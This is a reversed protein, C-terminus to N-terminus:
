RRFTNFMFLFYHFTGWISDSFRPWLNRIEMMMLADIRVSKCLNEFKTNQKKKQNSWKLMNQIINKNM